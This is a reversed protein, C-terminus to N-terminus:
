QQKASLLKVKQLTLQNACIQINIQAQVKLAEMLKM